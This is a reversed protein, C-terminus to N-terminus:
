WGRGKVMRKGGREERWWGRGKVRGEVMREGESVWVKGETERLLDTIQGAVGDYPYVKM